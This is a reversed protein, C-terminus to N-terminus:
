RPGPVAPRRRSQDPGVAPAGVIGRARGREGGSRIARRDLASSQREPLMPPAAKVAPRGVGSHSARSSAMRPTSVPPPGPGPHARSAARGCGTPLESGQCGCPRGPRPSRQHGASRHGTRLRSSVSRPEGPRRAIPGRPGGQLNVQLASWIGHEPAHGAMERGALCGLLRAEAEVGQPILRPYAQEVPDLPRRAPVAPEVAVVKLPEAVGRHRLAEPQQGLMVALHLLPYGQQVRLVPMQFLLDVPVAARHCIWASRLRVAERRRSHLRHPLGIATPARRASATRPLRPVQDVDPQDCQGAGDNREAAQRETLRGDLTDPEGDQGDTHSPGDLGHPQLSAPVPRRCGLPRPARVVSHPRPWGLRVCVPLRALGAARPRWRERRCPGPAGM